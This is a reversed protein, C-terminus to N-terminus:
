HKELTNTMTICCHNSFPLKKKWSNESMDLNQRKNAKNKHCVVFFLWRQNKASPLDPGCNELFFFFGATKIKEAFKMASMESDVILRKSKPYMRGAGEEQVSSDSHKQGWRTSIFSELEHLHFSRIHSLQM